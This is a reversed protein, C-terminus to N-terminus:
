ENVYKIILQARTRTICGWVYDGENLSVDASSTVGGGRGTNVVMFIPTQQGISIRDTVMSDLMMSSGSNFSTVNGVVQRFDALWHMGAQKVYANDYKQSHTKDYDHIVLYAVIEGNRNTRIVIVDGRELESFKSLSCPIDFYNKNSPPLDDSVAMYDFTSGGHACTLQTRIEGDDNMVKKAEDVVWTQVINFFTSNGGTDEPPNEFVVYRANLLSDSDYVKINAGNMTSGRLLYDGIEFDDENIGNGNVYICVASRELFHASELYQGYKVCNESSYDLSFNETDYGKYDPVKTNDVATQIHILEGDENQEYKILQRPKIVSIYDEKKISKTHVYENYFLGSYKLDKAAKLDLMKGLVTYIRFTYDKALNGNEAIAVLYGYNDLEQNEMDDYGVILNSTGLYFTGNIGIMKRLEDRIEPLVRYQNDNIYLYESDASGIAGVVKNTVLRIRVYNETDLDGEDTFRGMVELVSNKGIEGKNLKTGDLDVIDLLDTDFKNLNINKKGYQDMIVEYESDYRDVFYYVYQEIIIVDYTGDNDSDTLYIVGSQPTFDENTLAISETGNIFVDATASLKATKEKDTNHIYYNLFPNRKSDASDSSDFGSAKSVDLTDITLVESNNHIYIVEFDDDAERFYFDVTCGLMNYNESSAYYPNKYLNGDIVIHNNGAAYAGGLSMGCISTIVGEAKYVGLVEELYTDASLGYSKGKISSNILQVYKSNLMEFILEAAKTGTLQKVDSVETLWGLKAAQNMYESPYSLNTMISEYGLARLCITIAEETTVIRDPYFKGDTGVSVIGLQAATNIYKGQEGGVDEFLQEDDLFDLKMSEVIMVVFDGRTVFAAENYIVPIGIRNLLLEGNLPEKEALVSASPCVSVLMSVIIGMLMLTKFFRQWNDSRM